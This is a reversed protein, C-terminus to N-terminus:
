LPQYKTCLIASFNLILLTSLTPDYKYGLMTSSKPINALLMILHATNKKENNQKAKKRPYQENKYDIYTTPEWHANQVIHGQVM